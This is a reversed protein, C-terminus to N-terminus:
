TGAFPGGGFYHWTAGDDDTWVHDHQNGVISDFTIYVRGADVFDVRVDDGAHFSPPVTLERTAWEHRDDSHAAVVGVGGGGEGDCIIWATESAGSVPATVTGSAIQTGTWGYHLDDWAAIAAPCLGDAEHKVIRDHGPLTLPGSTSVPVTITTTTKTATHTAHSNCGALGLLVAFLISARVAHLKASAITAPRQM